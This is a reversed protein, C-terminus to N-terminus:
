MSFFFLPTDSPISIAMWWDRNLHGHGTIVTLYFMAPISVECFCIPENLSDFICSYVYHAMLTNIPALLLHQICKWHQAHTPPATHLAPFCFIKM